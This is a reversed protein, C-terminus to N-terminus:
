HEATPSWIAIREGPAAGAMNAARSARDLVEQVSCRVDSVAIGFRASIDTEVTESLAMPAEDLAEDLRSTVQGAQAADAGPLCILFESRGYRYVADYPRLHSYLRAALGVVVRDIGLNGYQEEIDDLGNPRVMVLCLPSDTRAAREWERELEALMTMRSQLEAIEEDDSVERDEPLGHEEQIRLAVGRFSDYAGLLADYEDAPLMEGRGVMDILYRAAEHVERHTRGLEVFLDGSLLGSQSHREFWRGFQCLRHANEDSIAAAPAEGCLAARHWRRLWRDHEAVADAVALIIDRSLPEVIVRNDTM